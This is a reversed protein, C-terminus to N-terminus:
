IGVNKEVKREIDVIKWELWTGVDVEEGKWKLCAGADRVNSLNRM